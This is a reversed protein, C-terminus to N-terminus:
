AFSVGRGCEPFSEADNNSNSQEGDAANSAANGFSVARLVPAFTPSRARTAPFFTVAEDRFTTRAVRRRPTANGTTLVEPPPIPAPHHLDRVVLVDGDSLQLPAASLKQARRLDEDDWRLSGLQQATLPLAGGGAQTLRALALQQSPIRAMSALADMLTSISWTAAVAITSRAAAAATADLTVFGVIITGSDVSEDDPLLHLAVETDAWASSTEQLQRLGVRQDDRLVHGVRAGTRKYLRLRSASLSTRVRASPQHPPHAGSNALARRVRRKLELVTADAPVALTVCAGPQVRRALPPIVLSHAGHDENGDGGEDDHEVAGEEGGGMPAENSPASRNSAHGDGDMMGDLGISSDSALRRRSEEGGGGEEELDEDIDSNALSSAASSPNSSPVSDSHQGDSVTSPSQSRSRSRSRPSHSRSRSRSHSSTSSGFSSDDDDGRQGLVQSATAWSVSRRGRRRGSGERDDDTTVSDDASGTAVAPPSSDRGNDESPLADLVEPLTWYCRVLAEGERLPLGEEVFIVDGTCLGLGGDGVSLPEMECTIHMGRAARRLRMADARGLRLRRALRRKLTAAAERGDITIAHAYDSLGPSNYFIEIRHWQAQRRELLRSHDLSAGLAAEELYIEDKGALAMRSLPWAEDPVGQPPLLLEPAGGADNRTVVLRQREAPVGFVEEVCNRLSALTASARAGGPVCVLRGTELSDDDEAGSDDNEGDSPLSGSEEGEDDSADLGEDDAYDDESRVSSESAASSASGSSRRSSVSSASSPPPPASPHHGFDSREEAESDWRDPGAPSIVLESLDWSIRRGGAAGGADAKVRSDSGGPARRRIEVLDALQSTWRVNKSFPKASSAASMASPQRCVTSDVGTDVTAKAEVGGGIKSTKSFSTSSESEVDSPATSPEESTPLSPAPAAISLGGQISRRAAEARGESRVAEWRKASDGISSAATGHKPVWRRVRVYVDDLSPPPWALSADRTELLLTAPAVVGSSRLTPPRLLPPTQPLLLTQPASPKGGESTTSALPPAVGLAACISHPTDDSACVGGNVM